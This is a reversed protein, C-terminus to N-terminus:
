ERRNQKIKPENYNSILPKNNMKLKDVNRWDITKKELSLYSMTKNKNHIPMSDIRLSKKEQQMDYYFNKLQEKDM